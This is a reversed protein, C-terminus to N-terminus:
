RAAGPPHAEAGMFRAYYGLVREWLDPPAPRGDPLTQPLPATFRLVTRSGHALTEVVWTQGQSCGLTLSAEVRLPPDWSCTKGWAIPQGEEPEEVLEREDWWVQSGAGAVSFEGAPWWLHTYDFFGEAASVQDAPVLVETVLPPEAGAVSPVPTPSAHSFLEDMVEHYGRAWPSQTARCRM